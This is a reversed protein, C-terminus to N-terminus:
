RQEDKVIEGRLCGLGKTKNLKELVKEMNRLLKTSNISKEIRSM